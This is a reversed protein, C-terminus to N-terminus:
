QPLYENTWNTHTIKTGKPLAGEANLFAMTTKWGSDNMSNSEPWDVQRLSRLLVADPIGTLIKKAVGLSENEHSHMYKTAQEIAGVFKQVIDPHEDVYSQRAVVIQGYGTKPISWAPVTEPSAVVVGDGAAQVALPIPESTVFWDIRNNNLAAKDAAPSPLSVYRVSSPQVGYARMFIGAQGRTTASSAGGTSGILAKAVTAPPTRETLNHAQAFKKSVILGIPNGVANMSVGVEPIKRGVATLFDTPSDNYFQVSDSELAAAGISATLTVFKVDLGAARFYGNADAVHLQTDFISGGVGVTVTTRGDSNGCATVLAAGLALIVALVGLRNRRKVMSDRM